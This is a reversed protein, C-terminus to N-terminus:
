KGVGEFIMERLAPLVSRALPPRRRIKHDPFSRSSDFQFWFEELRPMASLCTVVTEPSIYGSRPIGLHPKEHFFTSDAISSISHCPPQVMAATPCIWRFFSDPVVAMASTTAFIISELAPFTGLIVPIFMDM